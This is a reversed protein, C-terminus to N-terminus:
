LYRSAGEGHILGNNEIYITCPEGTHDTGKVMYRASLTHLKGDSGIIQTDIAGPLITGEFHPKIAM